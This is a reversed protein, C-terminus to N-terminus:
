VMEVKSPNGSAHREGDISKPDLESWVGNAVIIENLM